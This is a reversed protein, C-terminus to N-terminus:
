NAANFIYTRTRNSGRLYFYQFNFFIQIHHLPLMAAKPAAAIPEIGM